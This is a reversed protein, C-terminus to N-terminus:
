WVYINQNIALQMYDAYIVNVTRESKKEINNINHINARLTTRRRRPSAWTGCVSVHARTYKLSVDALLQRVACVCVGCFFRVRLLKQNYKYFIKIAAARTRGNLFCLIKSAARADVSQAACLTGNRWVNPYGKKIYAHAHM